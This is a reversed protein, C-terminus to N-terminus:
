QTGCNFSSTLRVSFFRMGECLLWSSLIKKLTLGPFFGSLVLWSLFFGVWEWCCEAWWGGVMGGVVKGVVVAESLVMGGMEKRRDFVM